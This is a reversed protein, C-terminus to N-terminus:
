FVPERLCFCKKCSHSRRSGILEEGQCSVQLSILFLLFLLILSSLCPVQIIIHLLLILRVAKSMRDLNKITMLCSLSTPSCQLQLCLNQNSHTARLITWWYPGTFIEQLFM